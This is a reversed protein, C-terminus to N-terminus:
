IIPAFPQQVIDTTCVGPEALQVLLFACRGRLVEHFWVLHMLAHSAREIRFFCSCNKSVFGESNSIKCSSKDSMEAPGVVDRVCSLSFQLKPM